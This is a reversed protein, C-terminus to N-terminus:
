FGNNQDETTTPSNGVTEIRPDDFWIKGPGKLFLGVGLITTEAPIDAELQIIKWDTTGTVRDTQLMGATPHVSDARVLLKNAADVAFLEIGGYNIVNQSKVYISFRLRKGRWSAANLGTDVHGRLDRPADTSSLLIAPQEFHVVTPDAMCSFPSPKPKPEKILRSNGVMQFAAPPLADGEAQQFKILQSALGTVIAPMTTLKGATIQASMDNCAAAYSENFHGVTKMAAAPDTPFQNAFSPQIRTLWNGGVLSMRYTLLGPVAVDVTHDDITKIQAAQIRAESINPGVVLAPPLPSKGQPDIKATYTAVLNARAQLLDVYSTLLNAEDPNLLSNEQRTTMGTRIAAADNAAFIRNMERLQDLPSPIAPLTTPSIDASPTQSLNPAPAPLNTSVQAISHHTIIQRVATYGVGGVILASAAITAAFQLKIWYMMKIAGKAIPGAASNGSAHLSSLTSAALTSSLSIPTAHVPHATLGATVATASLSVGRRAFIKRLKELARTVRKKAADESLGVTASIDTFSKRELFRLVVVNRDVACLRSLADDLHVTLESAEDPAISATFSEPKMAAAKQEYRRRVSELKLANMAAYRATLVLWGAVITKPSLTKAKRALVIFVAQTVDEALEPDHVQRRAASYVLDTYKGVLEAFAEESGTKRYADLLNADTM